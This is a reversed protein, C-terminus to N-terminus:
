FFRFRGFKKTAEKEYAMIIVAVILFVIGVANEPYFHTHEFYIQLGFNLIVEFSRFVNAKSPSVWRVAFTYCLNGIIGMAIISATSIWELESLNFLHGPHFIVISFTSVILAGTGFWFM